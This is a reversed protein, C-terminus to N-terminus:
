FGFEKRGLKGNWENFMIDYLANCEPHLRGNLVAEISEGCNTLYGTLEPTMLNKRIYDVLQYEKDFDLQRDYNM